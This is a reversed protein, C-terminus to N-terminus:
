DLFQEVCIRRASYVSASGHSSTPDRLDLEQHTWSNSYEHPFLRLLVLDQSPTPRLGSERTLRRPQPVGSPPRKDDNLNDGDYSATTGLRAISYPGSVYPSNLFYVLIQSDYALRQYSCVTGLMNMHLQTWVILGREQNLVHPPVRSRPMVL